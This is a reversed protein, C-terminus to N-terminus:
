AEPANCARGEPTLPLEAWFEPELRYLEDGTQEYFGDEEVTNDYKGTLIGIMRDYESCDDRPIPDPTWKDDKRMWEACDIALGCEEDPMPTFRFIVLYMGSKEPLKEATKYWTTMKRYGEM